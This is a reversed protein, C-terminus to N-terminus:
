RGGLFAAVLAKTRPYRPTRRGSEWWWFTTEDVCMATAAECIALGRRRREALLQEGLTRPEHWPERDLYAIIAPWSRDLPERENREWWMLSKWSTGIIRAADVRRHGLERRRQM